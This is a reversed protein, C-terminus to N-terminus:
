FKLNKSKPSDIGWSWIVITFEDILSYGLLDQSLVVKGLFTAKSFPVMDPIWPIFSIV